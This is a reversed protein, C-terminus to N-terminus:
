PAKVQRVDGWMGVGPVPALASRLQAASAVQNVPPSPKSRAQQRAQRQVVARAQVAGGYAGIRAALKLFARSPLM